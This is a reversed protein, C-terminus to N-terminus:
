SAENPSVKVAPMQEVLRRVEKVVEPSYGEYIGAPRRERDLLLSTPLSDVGLRMLDARNMRYVPIDIGLAALFRQGAAPHTDVNVTVLAFGTSALEDALRDLEPLEVRCPGCWSAWFALLVPRGDFSSLPVQQGDALQFLPLDPFPPVV